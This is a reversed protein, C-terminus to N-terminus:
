NNQTSSVNEKHKPTEKIPIITNKDDMTYIQIDEVITDGSLWVPSGNVLNYCLKKNNSKFDITLIFYNNNHLFCNGPFIEEVYKL